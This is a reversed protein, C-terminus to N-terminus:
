FPFIRLNKPWLPERQTHYWPNRRQNDKFTNLRLLKILAGTLNQRPGVFAECNWIFQGQIKYCSCSKGFWALSTPLLDWRRIYCFLITSSQVRQMINFQLYYMHCCLPVTNLSQRFSFQKFKLLESMYLSGWTKWLCKDGGYIQELRIDILYRPFLIQQTMFDGM